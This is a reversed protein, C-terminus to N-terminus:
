ERGITASFSVLERLSVTAFKSKFDDVKHVTKSQFFRGDMENSIRLFDLYTRVDFVCDVIHTNTSPVHVSSGASGGVIMIGDGGSEIVNLGVYSCLGTM